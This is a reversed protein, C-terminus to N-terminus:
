KYKNIRAYMNLQVTKIFLHKYRTIVIFFANFIFLM